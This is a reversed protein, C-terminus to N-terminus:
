PAGGRLFKLRSAPSSPAEGGCAPYLRWPRHRASPRSSIAEPAVTEVRSVADSIEFCPYGLAPVGEILLGALARTVQGEIDPMPLLLLRGNLRPRLASQFAEM